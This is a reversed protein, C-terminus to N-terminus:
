PSAWSLSLSKNYECTRSSPPVACPPGCPLFELPTLLSHPGTPLHRKQANLTSYVPLTMLPNWQHMQIDSPWLCPLLPLPPSIVSICGAAQVHDECVTRPPHQPMLFYSTKFLWLACSKDRREFTKKFGVIFFTRLALM